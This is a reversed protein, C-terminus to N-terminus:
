VEGFRIKRCVVKRVEDDSIWEHATTRRHEFGVADDTAFDIAGSLLHAVATNADNVWVLKM